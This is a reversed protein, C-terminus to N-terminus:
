RAARIEGTSARRSDYRRGTQSGPEELCHRVSSGGTPATLATLHRLCRTATSHSLPPLWVGFRSRLSATSAGPEGRAALGRQRLWDLVIGALADSSDDAMMAYGVDHVWLDPGRVRLPSIHSILLDRCVGDQYGADDLLSNLRPQHKARCSAGRFPPHGM